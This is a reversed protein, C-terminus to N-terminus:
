KKNIMAPSVSFGSAPGSYTAERNPSFAEGSSASIGHLYDGLTTISTIDGSSNVAIDCVNWVDNIATAGSPPTFNYIDTRGGGSVILNVNAGSNSIAESGSFHHVGFRYTGNYLRYISTVEPGYSSIDDTDLIAYPYQTAFYDYGKEVTYQYWLHGRKTASSTAPITLHSDLDAPSQGWTVTFQVVPADLVIDGINTEIDTSLPGKVQPTGKKGGKQAWVEFTVGSEVPIRTFIGDSGTATEGSEWKSGIWGKGRCRIEAGQVPKGSSDVVRGSVLARSFSIDYNWTSFHSVTGVFAELSANYTGTGEQKWKGDTEDFYWLPCTGASAAEPTLEPPVPITVTATKGAGLYLTGNGTVNIDMFGFSKFQQTIGSTNVGEFEGPFASLENNVTPDFPTLTVQATGTFSTGSSDVLSGAPISISATLGTSTQASLSGGASADLDQANGAAALTADLFTAQGEIIQVIRQTPVFGSKSISVIERSSTSLNSFTFWGQANTTVSAGSLTVTVASEGTGDTDRVTGMLVGYSQASPHVSADEVVRGCGFMLGGVIVLTLFGFIFKKNM